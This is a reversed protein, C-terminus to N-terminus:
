ARAEEVRNRCNALYGRVSDYVKLGAEIPLSAVKGILSAVPFDNPTWGYKEEFRNRAVISIICRGFGEFVGPLASAAGVSALDLLTPDQSSYKSFLGAGLAAYSLVNTFCSTDTAQVADFGTISELRKQLRGSLNGTVSCLAIASGAGVIKRVDRGVVGLTKRFESRYPESRLESGDQACYRAGGVATEFGCGKRQCYRTETKM